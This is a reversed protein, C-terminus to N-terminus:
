KLHIHKLLVSDETPLSQGESYRECHLAEQCFACKVFREFEGGGGGVCVSHSVYVTIM